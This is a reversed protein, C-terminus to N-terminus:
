KFFNTNLLGLYIIFTTEIKKTPNGINNLPSKLTNKPAIYLNNNILMNTLKTCRKKLLNSLTLSVRVVHFAKIYFDMNM